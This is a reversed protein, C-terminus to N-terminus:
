KIKLTLQWVLLLGAIKLSPLVIALKVISNSEMVQLYNNTDRDVVADFKMIEKGDKMTIELPKTLNDAMERSDQPSISFFWWVIKDDINKTILSKGKVFEINM